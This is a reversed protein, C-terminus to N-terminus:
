WKKEFGRGKEMRGHRLRDVQKSLSSNKVVDWGDM